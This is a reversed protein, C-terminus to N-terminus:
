RPLRERAKGRIDHTALELDTIIWRRKQNDRVASKVIADIVDDADKREQNAKCMAEVASRREREAMQVEEAVARADPPPDYIYKKGGWFSSKFWGIPKPDKKAFETTTQWLATGTPGVCVCVMDRKILSIHVERRRKHEDTVLYVRNVELRIDM